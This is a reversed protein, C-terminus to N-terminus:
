NIYRVISKFDEKEKDSYNFRKQNIELSKYIDGTKHRRTAAKWDIVMEIKRIDDMDTTWNKYYEPHHKNKNYHNKLSPELKKLLQKYEESGYESSKLLFITEAFGKAEKWSYKSLDHILANFLLVGKNKLPIDSKLCFKCSYFFVWFKHITTQIQTYIYGLIM